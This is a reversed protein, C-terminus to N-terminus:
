AVVFSFSKAFLPSMAIAIGVGLVSVLLSIRLAENPKIEGSPLSRKSTCGMKADIDRDYWMNLITSGSISLFLSTSLGVMTGFTTVPCRATMYGALGTVMLLTTQLSKILPFYLRLKEKLFSM